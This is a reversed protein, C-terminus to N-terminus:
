KGKKLSSLLQNYLNEAELLDVGTELALKKLDPKKGSNIFPLLMNMFVNMKDLQQQVGSPVPKNFHKEWPNIETAKKLIKEAYADSYLAIAELSIKEDM